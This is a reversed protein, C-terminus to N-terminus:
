NHVQRVNFGEATRWVLKREYDAGKLDTTIVAEWQETSVAPFEAFLKEKETNAM